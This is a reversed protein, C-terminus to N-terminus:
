SAELVAEGHVPNSHGTERSVVGFRAVIRQMFDPRYMLAGLITGLTNNLWDRSDSDRTPLYYQTAEILFSLACGFVITLLIARRVSMSRSFYVCFFFGLPVFGFLNILVDKWFGWGWDTPRWFAELFRPHLVLYHDPIYLDIGGHIQNHAVTGTRENFRFVATAQREAIASPQGFATWAAYNQRVEEATLEQDYLGIGHLVGSWSDNEFPSTGVVMRGSLDRPVFSFESSSRVLVGDLYISIGTRGSTLTIFLPVDQRLAHPVYLVQTRGSQRTFKRVLSLDDLSQKIAFRVSNEPSDFGLMTNSDQIMGPQMWLEISCPGDPPGEWRLPASSLISAYDGFHLGDQNELWNVDNPRHPTFPSLGTVFIVCLISGCIFLLIGNAVRAPLLPRNEKLLPM